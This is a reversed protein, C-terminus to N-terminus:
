LSDSRVKTLLRLPVTDGDKVHENFTRICYRKHPIIPVSGRLLADNNTAYLLIIKNKAPIRNQFRVLDVSYTGPEYPHKLVNTLEVKIASRRSGPERDTAISTAYASVSSSAVRDM